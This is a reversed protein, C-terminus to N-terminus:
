RSRSPTPKRRPPRHRVVPPIRWLRGSGVILPCAAGGLTRMLYMQSAAATGAPCKAERSAVVRQFAADIEQDGVGALSLAKRAALYEEFAKAKSSADRADISCVKQVKHCADMIRQFVAGPKTPKGWNAMIYRVAVDTREADRWMAMRCALDSAKRQEDTPLAHGSNTSLRISNGAESILSATRQDPAASAIPARDADYIPCSAAIIAANRAKRLAPADIGVGELDRLAEAWLKWVVPEEAEDYDTVFFAQLQLLADLAFILADHKHGHGHRRLLWEVALALDQAHEDAFNRHAWEEDTDAPKM